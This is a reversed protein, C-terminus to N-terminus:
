PTMLYTIPRRDGALHAPTGAALEDLFRGLARAVKPSNPRDLTVTIRKHEFTIRGGLHLLNRAIARYEDNDALYVNLHRALDLEANYALLRCVMQLARAALHPKARKATPDLVNAPLKAPIGKLGQRAAALEDDAIAVDDRLVRIKALHVDMDSVANGSQRGLAREAVTVTAEANKVTARAAPRAPNTVKATNAETDM